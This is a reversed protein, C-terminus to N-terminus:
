KFLLTALIGVGLAATACNLMTSHGKIVEHKMEHKMGELEVKIIDVEHQVKIIRVNQEHVLQKMELKHDFLAMEVEHQAKIIRVNQEHVPQKTELKHDFLAKELSRKLDEHVMKGGTDSLLTGDSSSHIQLPVTRAAKAASAAGAGGVEGGTSHFRRPVTRASAAARARSMSIMAKAAAAVM